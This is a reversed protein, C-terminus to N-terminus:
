GVAFAERPALLVLSWCLALQVGSWVMRRPLM